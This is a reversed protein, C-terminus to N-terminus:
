RSRPEEGGRRGDGRKKYLHGSGNNGSGSNGSDEERAAGYDGTKGGLHKLPQSSSLQEEPHVASSSPSGRPM